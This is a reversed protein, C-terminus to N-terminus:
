TVCRPLPSPVPPYRSSHLPFLLLLPNSLKSPLLPFPLYSSLFPLITFCFCSIFVFFALFGFCLLTFYIIFCMLSCFGISYHLMIGRVQSAAAKGSLLTSVVQQMDPSFHQPLPPFLSHTLSLSFYSYFFALTLISIFTFTFVFVLIFLFTFM